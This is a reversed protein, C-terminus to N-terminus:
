PKSEAVDVKLAKRANIEECQTCRVAHTFFVPNGCQICHMPRVAGNATGDKQRRTRNKRGKYGGSAKSM